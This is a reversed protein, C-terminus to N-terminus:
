DRVPPCPFLALFVKFLGPVRRASYLLGLRHNVGSHANKIKSDAPTTVSSNPATEWLKAWSTIECSSGVGDETSSIVVGM